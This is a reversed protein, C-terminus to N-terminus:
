SPASSSSSSQPAVRRPIASVSHPLSGIFDHLQKIYNRTSDACSHAQKEVKKARLNNIREDRRKLFALVYARVNRIPLLSAAEVLSSRNGTTRIGKDRLFKTLEDVPLFSLWNEISPLQEAKAKRLVSLKGDSDILWVGINKPVLAEVNLQHRTACVVTVEEFFNQYSSIQGELRELTDRESKIEFVSLKGNAMVLDARRSFKDVFMESIFAAKAGSTSASLRDILANRIETETMEIAVSLLSKHQNL